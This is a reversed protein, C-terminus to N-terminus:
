APPAGLSVQKSMLWGEYSMRTQAELQDMLYEAYRLRAVATSGLSRLANDDLEGVTKVGAIVDESPDEWTRLLPGLSGDLSDSDILGRKILESITRLTYDSALDRERRIEWVERMAKVRISTQGPDMLGETVSVEPRPLHALPVINADLGITWRLLRLQECWSFLNNKQATTWAGDAACFLDSEGTELQDWLERKRLMKNIAGRVGADALQQANPNNLSLETGARLILGALIATRQILYIRVAPSSSRRDEEPLLPQQIFSHQFIQQSGRNVRRIFLFALFGSGFILGYFPVTWIGMGNERNIKWGFILYVVLYALWFSV